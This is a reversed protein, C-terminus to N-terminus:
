IVALAKENRQETQNVGLLVDTKEKLITLTSFVYHLRHVIVEIIQGIAQM